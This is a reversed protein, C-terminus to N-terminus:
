KNNIQDQATRLLVALDPEGGTAFTQFAERVANGIGTEIEGINEVAPFGVAADAITRRRVDITLDSSSALPEEDYAAEVVPLVDFMEAVFSQEAASTLHGVLQFAEAKHQSDASVVLDIGSIHSQVNEGGEIVPMPAAEWDVFGRGEFQALPNQSFLMAAEGDIFRDTAEGAAGLEADSPSMIADETMLDLLRQTGAVQAPSALTAEGDSDVFSGGEQQGLIFALHANVTVAAAPYSIGWQDPQGDGDKDLTLAQGVEVFEEWTAPPEGIGAAEFLAPNYYLSYASSLYPVAVQGLDPVVAADWTAPIFREEGGIADLYEGEVPEFGGSATLSAVWTSGISLVDPGTGSSVATLIRNYLDAWPIVEIEVEIGTDETFAAVSEAWALESETVSAAQQTAWWTLTVDENGEANACGALTGATMAVAGLAALVKGKAAMTM